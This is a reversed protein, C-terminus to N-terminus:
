RQLSMFQYLPDAPSPRGHRRVMDASVLDTALAVQSELHREAPLCRKAHTRSEPRVSTCQVCDNDLAAAIDDDLEPTQAALVDNFGAWCLLGTCLCSFVQRKMRSGSVWTHVKRYAGISAGEALPAVFFSIEVLSM